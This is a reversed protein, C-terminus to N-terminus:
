LTQRHTSYVWSTLFILPLTCFITVFPLWLRWPSLSVVAAEARGMNLDPICKVCVFLFHFQGQQSPKMLPEEVM